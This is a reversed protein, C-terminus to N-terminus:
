WRGHRYGDHGYYGRGYYYHGYYPRGFGFGFTVVPAPYYVPAPAYYVPPAPQAYVVQPAASQIVPAPPLTPANPVYTSPAPAYNPAPAYTPAPAYYTQAPYYYTPAPAYYYHPTVADAIVTGLALGGLVGAAIAVGGGGHAEARQVQTGALALVTVALIIKKM